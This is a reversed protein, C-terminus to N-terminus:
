FNSERTRPGPLVFPWEHRPNVRYPERYYQANGGPSRPREEWSQPQGSEDVSYALLNLMEQDTLPKRAFAQGLMHRLLQEDPPPQNYTGSWREDFTAPSQQAAQRARRVAEAYPDPM